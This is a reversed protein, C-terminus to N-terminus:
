HITSLENRQSSCDFRQLVKVPRPFLIYTRKRVNLGNDEVSDLIIEFNHTWNISKPEHFNPGKAFVDGLSTNTIINLGGTIVHGDPNYIHILFKCLYLMISISSTTLTDQTWDMPEEPRDVNPRVVPPEGSSGFGQSSALPFQLSCLAYRM